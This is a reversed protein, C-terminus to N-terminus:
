KKEVANMRSNNIAKQIDGKYIFRMYPNQKLDDCVSSFIEWKNELNCKNAYEKMGDVLNGSFWYISSLEIASVYDDKDEKLDALHEAIKKRFYTKFYRENAPIYRNLKKEYRFIYDVETRKAKLDDVNDFPRNTDILEPVGDNDLDKMLWHGDTLYQNSDLLIEIHGNRGLHFLQYSNIDHAGGGSIQFLVVYDCNKLRYIFADCTDIQNQNNIDDACPISKILKNNYKLAIECGNKRTCSKELKYNDFKVSKNEYNNLEMVNSAGVAHCVLVMFLAVLLVIPTKM